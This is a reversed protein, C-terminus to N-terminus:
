GIGFSFSNQVVDHVGIHQYDIVPTRLRVLFVDSALIEPENQFFAGCFPQRRYDRGIEGGFFYKGGVVFSDIGSHAVLAGREEESESSVIQAQCLPVRGLVRLNTRLKDRSRFCPLTFRNRLVLRVALVIEGYKCM